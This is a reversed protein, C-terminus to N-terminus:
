VGRETDGHTIWHLVEAPTSVARRPPMEPRDIMLVPLGLAQAAIIKGYAGSGGANKSVVMDIQHTELLNADKPATFPGRAIILRHNPLAPPTEPADVFRLLYSHQPQAQFRGIDMRGIALFVRQPPINLAAIAGDLDAVHTWRDEPDETWPPRTLAILPTGTRNAALAANQSIQAAFPHTADVIHSINAEALFSSLGDVGGFGGIRTPVPLAVPATTRGAYSYIAPLGAKAIEHALARAETTGGLILINLHATM